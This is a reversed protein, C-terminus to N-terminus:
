VAADSVCAYEGAVSFYFVIIFCLLLLLLLLLLLNCHASVVVMFVRVSLAYSCLLFCM